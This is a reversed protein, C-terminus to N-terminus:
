NVIRTAKGVIRLAPVNFHTALPVIYKEFLENKVAKTLVQPRDKRAHAERVLIEDPEGDMMVYGSIEINRTVPFGPHINVDPRTAIIVENHRGATNELVYEPTFLYSSCRLISEKLMGNRVEAPCEAFYKRIMDPDEMPEHRPRYELSGAQLNSNIDRPSAALINQNPVTLIVGFDRFAYPKDNSVLSGCLADFNNILSAARYSFIGQGGTLDALPATHVIFRFPEDILGRQDLSAPATFCSPQWQQLTDRYPISEPFYSGHLRTTTSLSVPGSM